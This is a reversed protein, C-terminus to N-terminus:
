LCILVFVWVSQHFAASSLPPTLLTIPSLLLPLYPLPPCLLQHFPLLCSTTRQTFPQPEPAPLKGPPRGLAINIAHDIDPSFSPSTPQHQQQNLFIPFEWNVRSAWKAAMEATGSGVAIVQVGLTIFDAIRTQIDCGYWFALFSPYTSSIPFFFSPM